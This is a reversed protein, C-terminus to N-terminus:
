LVGEEKGGNTVVAPVPDLYEAVTSEARALRKGQMWADVVKESGHCASPLENYIYACIHFLTAANQDDARGFANMLDNSLVARLFGGTPIGQQVYRALSERVTDSVLEPRYMM